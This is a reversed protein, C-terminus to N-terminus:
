QVIKTIPAARGPGIARVSRGACVVIRMWGAKYLLGRDRHGTRRQAERLEGQCAIEGCMDLNLM